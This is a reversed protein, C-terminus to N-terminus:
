EDCSQPAAALEEVKDFLAAISTEQQLCEHVIRGRDLVLIRDAVAHVHHLNHSIFLASHGRDPITRIFKLVRGVEKVALATTPEDLITLTADFHMARSIALGQREGGSLTSVLSDANVGAGSLGVSNRLMTMTLAKEEAVRIFGFPNRLHRGVFVNRWLPQKEGLSREQYVTEIGLARAKRVSYRNFSVETGNVQLSGSDPRIVGSLLKILTSKGAGNDGILAVVECSGIDLSVDRLAQVPGFSKALNRARIIADLSM